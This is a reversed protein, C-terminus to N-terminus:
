SVVSGTPINPTHCPAPLQHTAAAAKRGQAQMTGPVRASIDDRSLMKLGTLLKTRAWVPNPQYGSRKK